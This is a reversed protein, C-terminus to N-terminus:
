GKTSTVYDVKKKIIILEGTISHFLSIFKGSKKDEKSNQACAFSFCSSATVICKTEKSFLKSYKIPIRVM